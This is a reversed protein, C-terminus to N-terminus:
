LHVQDTPYTTKLKNIEFTKETRAKIDAIHIINSKQFSYIFLKKKNDYDSIPKFLYDFKNQEPYKALKLVEYPKNTNLMIYSFTDVLNHTENQKRYPLLFNDNDLIHIRTNAFTSVFLNDNFISLNSLPEVQYYAQVSDTFVIKQYQTGNEYFVYICSDKSAIGFAKNPLQIQQLLKGNSVSYVQLTDQTTLCTMFKIDYAFSIFHAGFVFIRSNVDISKFNVISDTEEIIFKPNFSKNKCSSILLFVGGLILSTSKIIKSIVM